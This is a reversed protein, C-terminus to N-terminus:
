TGIDGTRFIREGNHTDFVADNPDPGTYDKHVHYGVMVNDGAVCIEGEEGSPVEEQLLQLPSCFADSYM